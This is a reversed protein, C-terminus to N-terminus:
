KGFPNYAVHTREIARIPKFRRKWADQGESESGQLLLYKPRTGSEWIHNIGQWTIYMELGGCSKNIMVDGFLSDGIEDPYAQHSFCSMGVLEEGQFYALREIGCISQDFIYEHAAIVEEPYEKGKKGFHMAFELLVNYAAEKMSPEYWRTTISYRRGSRRIAGRTNKSTKGPILYAFSEADIVYQPFSNDDRFSYKSWPTKTESFGIARWEEIEGIPVNKVITPTKLCRGAAQAVELALALRKPGYGNVIVLPLLHHGAGDGTKEGLYLISEEKEYVHPQRRTAQVIYAFHNEFAYRDFGPRLMEQHLYNLFRGREADDSRGLDLPRLSAGLIKELEKFLIM